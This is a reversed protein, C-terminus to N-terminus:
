TGAQAKGAHTVLANGRTTLATSPRVKSMDLLLLAKKGKDMALLEREVEDLAALVEAEEANTCDMLLISEGRYVIREPHRVM